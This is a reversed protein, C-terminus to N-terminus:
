EAWHFKDDGLLLQIYNIQGDHYNMHSAPLFVAEGLPFMAGWPMRVQKDLDAESLADIARCVMGASETVLQGLEDLTSAAEIRKAFEEAAAGPEEGRIPAAIRANTGAVEALIQAATKACGIPCWALKEEPIYGADKILREANEVTFNKAADLISAM